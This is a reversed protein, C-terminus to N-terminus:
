GGVVDADVDDGVPGAGVLAHEVVVEAGLLAKVERHQLPGVDGHALGLLVPAAGQLRGNRDFVYLRANRKDIVFFSPALETM